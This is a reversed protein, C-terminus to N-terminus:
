HMLHFARMGGVVIHVWEFSISTLPIEVGWLWLLVPRLFWYASYIVQKHFSLKVTTIIRCSNQM